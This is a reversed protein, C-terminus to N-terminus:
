PLRDSVLASLPYWSVRQRVPTVQLLAQTTASARHKGELHSVEQLWESHRPNGVYSGFHMAVAGDCDDVM